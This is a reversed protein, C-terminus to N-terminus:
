GVAFFLLLKDKSCPFTIIVPPTPGMQCVRSNAFMFRDAAGKQKTIAM